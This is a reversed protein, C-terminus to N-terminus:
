SPILISKLLGLFYRLRVLHIGVLFIVSSVAASDRADNSKLLSYEGKDLPVQLQGNHRDDIYLRCPVGSSRFFTTAMIEGREVWKVKDELGCNATM